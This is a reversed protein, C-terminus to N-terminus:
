LKLEKQLNDLATWMVQYYMQHLNAAETDMGAIDHAEKFYEAKRDEIIRRLKRDTIM